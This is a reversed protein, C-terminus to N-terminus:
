QILDRDKEQIEKLRVPFIKEDVTVFPLLADIDDVIDGQKPLRSLTDAVIYIRPDKSTTLRLDM